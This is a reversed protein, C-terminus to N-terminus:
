NNIVLHSGCNVLDSNVEWWFKPSGNCRIMFTDRVTEKIHCTPKEKGELIDKPLVPNAVLDQQSAAQRLGAVLRNYEEQLRNSDSVKVRTLSSPTKDNNHMGLTKHTWNSVNLGVSLLELKVLRQIHENLHTISTKAKDLIRRNINISMSDVCINDTLPSLRNFSTPMNDCKLATRVECNVLKNM